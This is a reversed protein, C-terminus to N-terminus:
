SGADDVFDGVCEVVSVVLMAPCDAVSMKDFLWVHAVFFDGFHSMRIFIRDVTLRGQGRVIACEFM